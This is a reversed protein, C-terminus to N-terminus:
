PAAISGDPFSGSSHPKEKTLVVATAIGGLVVAGIGTWFWWKSTISPTKRLELAVDRRDGLAVTMAVREEYYGDATAVLEHLGPTARVQLPARGLAKGDFMVDASPTTRVVILADRKRLVMNAEVVITTGASLEIDRRFTEYGDSAVEVSAAGARIAIRREGFVAGEDKQRVLLRANPANTKIVLTAMRGRLDVILEHLGPARARVAAPANQEFSELKELAKLYDGLAEYARGENYLLAPDSSLEYAREYLVLADAYRDQDMLVDAASKLRAAESKMQAESKPAKTTSQARAATPLVVLLLSVIVLASLLRGGVRKSVSVLGRM